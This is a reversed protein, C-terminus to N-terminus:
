VVHAYHPGQKLNAKGRESLEYNNAFFLEWFNYAFRTEGDSIDMIVHENMEGGVKFYVKIYDLNKMELLAKQAREKLHPNKKLMEIVKDSDQERIFKANAKDDILELLGHYVNPSSVEVEKLFDWGFTQSEAVQLLLRTISKSPSHLLKRGHNINLTTKSIILSIQGCDYSYTLVADVLRPSYSWRDKIEEFALSSFRSDELMRWMTKDSIGMKFVHQAGYRNALEFEEDSNLGVGCVGRLYQKRSLPVANLFPRYLWTLWLKDAINDLDSGNKVWKATGQSISAIIWILFPNIVVAFIIAMILFFFFQLIAFIKKITKM